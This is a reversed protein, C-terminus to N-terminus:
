YFAYGARLEHPVPHRGSMGNDDNQWEDGAKKFTATSHCVIEDRQNYPYQHIMCNHGSADWFWMGMQLPNNGTNPPGFEEYTGDAHYFVRREREGTVKGSAGVNSIDTNGFYGDMAAKPPRKDAPANAPKKFRLVFDGSTVDAAKTMDDSANAAAQSQGDFTFGAGLIEAKVADAETRHLADASSFGAGKAAAHDIVLFVGGPKLAQLLAKDVAAMNASAFEKSHLLHYSDGSVVADLQQPAAFQGGYQTIQQWLVHVNSYITVNELTYALEVRSLPINQGQDKVVPGTRAKEDRVDTFPVVSYVIGKAGVLKSVIRTYYGAEPMFDAVTMGPKIGSFAFIAAPNQTKDRAREWAPRGPDNVAATVYNPVADAASAGTALAMPLLACCLTRISIM